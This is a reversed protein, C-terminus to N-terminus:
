YAGSQYAGRRRPGPIQRRLHSRALSLRALFLNYFYASLDERQDKIVAQWCVYFSLAKHATVPLSPNDADASLAAPQKIYYIKIGASLSSSPIPHLWLCDSFYYCRLPTGSDSFMDIADLEHQRVIEDYSVIQLPENDYFVGAKSFALFDSPLSYNAQDAVASATSRTQPYELEACIFYYGDNLWALLEVDSWESGTASTEELLARIDVILEGKNM